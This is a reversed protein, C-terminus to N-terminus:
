RVVEDLVQADLLESDVFHQVGFNDTIQVLQKVTSSGTYLVWEVGPLEPDYVTADETETYLTNTEQISEQLDEFNIKSIILSSPQYEIIEVVGGMAAVRFRERAGPVLYRSNSEAYLVTDDSIRSLSLGLNHKLRFGRASYLSGYVDYTDYRHFAAYRYNDKGNLYPLQALNVLIMLLLLSVLFPGVEIQSYKKHTNM